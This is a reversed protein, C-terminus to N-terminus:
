ELLQNLHPRLRAAAAAACRTPLERLESLEIVEKAAGANRANHDEKLVYLRRAARATAANIDHRRMPVSLSSLLRITGKRPDSFNRSEDNRSKAASTETHYGSEHHATCM